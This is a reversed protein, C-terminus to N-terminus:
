TSQIVSNLLNQITNDNWNIQRRLNQIKANYERISEESVALEERLPKLRDEVFRQQEQVKAVEEVKKERYSHFEKVMQDIDEQVFGISKGLPNTAQCLAQISNRM